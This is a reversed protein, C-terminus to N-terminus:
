YGASSKMGGAPIDPKPEALDLLLTIEKIGARIAETEDHPTGSCELRVRLSRLRGTAYHEIFRWTVSGTEIMDDM